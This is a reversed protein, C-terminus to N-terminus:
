RNVHFRASQDDGEALLDAWRTREGREEGDARQDGGVAIEAEALEVADFGCLGHVDGDDLGVDRPHRSWGASRRRRSVRGYGAEVHGGREERIM